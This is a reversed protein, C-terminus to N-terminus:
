HSTSSGLSSAAPVVTLSLGYGLDLTVNTASVPAHNTFNLHGTLRRATAPLWAAVSEPMPTPTLTPTPRSQLEEEVKVVIAVLADSFELQRRQEM